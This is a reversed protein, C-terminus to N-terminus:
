LRTKNAIYLFYDELTPKEISIEDYYIKNNTLDRLFEPISKEKVDVIIHRGQIKYSVHMEKCLEITKKFGDNILLDVHSTKISKALNKPIDDAIIKGNNIFIVRDSVEEVEAMNHSTLIISVKFEKQQNLLFDRIYKAVDPDLSATPEDLLLVKPFNIFAKALNVKTIQGSSLEHIQLPM